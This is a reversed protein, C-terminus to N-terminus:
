NLIIDIEIEISSINSVSETLFQFEYLSILINKKGKVAQM